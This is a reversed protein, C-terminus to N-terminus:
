FCAHSSRSSHLPLTDMWVLPETRQSEQGVGWGGGTGYLRIEMGYTHCFFHPIRGYQAVRTIAAAAAVAAITSLTKHNIERHEVQGPKKHGFAAGQGPAIAVEFRYGPVQAEPSGSRM